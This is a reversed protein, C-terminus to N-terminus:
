RTKWSLGREELIGPSQQNLVERAFDAKLKEHGCLTLSRFVRLSCLPDAKPPMAVLGRRLTIRVARALVLPDDTRECRGAAM